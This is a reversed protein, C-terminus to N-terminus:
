ALGLRPLQVLSTTLSSLVPRVLHQRDSPSPVLLEPVQPSDLEEQLMGSFTSTAGYSADVAITLGAGSTFAGFALTDAGDTAGFYYTNGSGRLQELSYWATTVLALM